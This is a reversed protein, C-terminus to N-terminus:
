FAWLAAVAGLVFGAVAAITVSWPRADLEQLARQRGTVYGSQYWDDLQRDRPTM